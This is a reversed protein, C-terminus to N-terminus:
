TFSLSTICTQGSEAGAYSEITTYLLQVTTSSNSPYKNFSIQSVQDSFHTTSYCINVCNIERERGVKSYLALFTPLTPLTIWWFVSCIQSQLSWKKILPKMLNQTCFLSFDLLAQFLCKNLNLKRPITFDNLLIM